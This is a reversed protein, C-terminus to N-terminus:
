LFLVVLSFVVVAKLFLSTKTNTPNKGGEKLKSQWKPRNWCKGLPKNFYTVPWLSQCLMAVKKTNSQLLNSGYQRDFVSRIEWCFQRACTGRACPFRQRAETRGCTVSATGLHSVCRCTLLVAAPRQQLGAHHHVVAEGCPQVRDGQFRFVQVREGGRRSLCLSSSHPFLSPFTFCANSNVKFPSMESTNVSLTQINDSTFGCKLFNHEFWM